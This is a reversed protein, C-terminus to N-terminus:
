PKTTKHQPQSLFISGDLALFFFFLHGLISGQLVDSYQTGISVNISFASFYDSSSCFILVATTIASHRYYDIGSTIM